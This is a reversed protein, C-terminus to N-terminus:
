ALLVPEYSSRGMRAKSPAGSSGSNGVLKSPATHTHGVSSNSPKKMAFITRRAYPGLTHRTTRNPSQRDSVGCGVRRSKERM